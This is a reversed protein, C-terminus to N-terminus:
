YVQLKYKNCNIKKKGWTIEKTQKQTHYHISIFNFSFFFNFIVQSLFNVTVYIDFIAEPM